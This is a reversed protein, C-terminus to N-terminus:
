DTDSAMGARWRERLKPLDVATEHMVIVLQALEKKDGGAASEFVFKKDEDNLPDGNWEAMYRPLDAIVADADCIGGTVRLDRLHSKNGDPRAPNEDVWRDWEGDDIGELILEGTHEAMEDDLETQRVRIEAMRAAVKVREPDNVRTPKKPEDEPIFARTALDALENALSQMEAMVAGALCLQYSRRPRGVKPSQRMEALSKSM